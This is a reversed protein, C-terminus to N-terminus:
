NGFFPIGLVLCDKPSCREPLNQPTQYQALRNGDKDYILVVENNMRYWLDGNTGIWDMIPLGKRSTIEYDTMDIAPSLDSLRYATTAVQGTDDYHREFLGDGYFDIVYNLGCGFASHLVEGSSPDYVEIAPEYVKQSNNWKMSTIIVNENAYDLAIVDMLGRFNPDENTEELNEGYIFPLEISGESSEKTVPNYTHYSAFNKGDEHSGFVWIAKDMEGNALGMWGDCKVDPVLEQKFQTNVVLLEQNANNQCILVHDGVWIAEFVPYTDLQITGVEGNPSLKSFYHESIGYLLYVNGEEDVRPELKLKTRSDVSLRAYQAHRNLSETVIEAQKDSKQEIYSISLAPASLDEVFLTEGDVPYTDQSLAAVHDSIPYTLDDSQSSNDLIEQNQKATPSSPMCAGLMVMVIILSVIHKLKM